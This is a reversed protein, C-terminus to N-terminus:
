GAGAKALMSIVPTNSIGVGVVSVNKNKVSDLFEAVSCSM